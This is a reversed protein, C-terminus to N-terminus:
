SGDCRFITGITSLAIKIDLLPSQRQIYEIDLHVMDNFSLTKRGSVQWLGTIGPRVSLRQRHWDKYMSVAFPIDPRPGIVSMEGRLVNFLQPLEDLNTKRLLAGFKTVRADNVVKYLAQGNRDVKYPADEQIYRILYSKYEQDDNDVRMTRFKYATFEKGGEGVQIRSHIVSGRSDFWIMLAILAMLPSLVVLALLSFVRDYIDKWFRYTFLNTSQKERTPGAVNPDNENQFACTTTEIKVYTM